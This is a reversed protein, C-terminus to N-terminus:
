KTNEWYSPYSAGAKEIESKADQIMDARFDYLDRYAKKYKEGWTCHEPSINHLINNVIREALDYSNM